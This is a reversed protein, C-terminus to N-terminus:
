IAKLPADAVNGLPHDTNQRCARVSGFQDLYMSAAPAYCASWRWHPELNRVEDGPHVKTPRARVGRM